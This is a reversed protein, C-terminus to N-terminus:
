DVCGMHSAVATAPVANTPSISKLGRVGHPIRSVRLVKKNKNSLLKKLMYDYTTKIVKNNEIFDDLESLKDTNFFAKLDYTNSLIKDTDVDEIFDFIDQINFASVFSLEPFESFVLPEYLLRGFIIENNSINTLGYISKIKNLGKSYKLFSDKFQHKNICNNEFNIKIIRDFINNINQYIDDIKNRNSIDLKTYDELILNHFLGKTLYLTSLSNYSASIFPREYTGARGKRTLENEFEGYDIFYPIKVINKEESKEFPNKLRESIDIMFDDIKKDYTELLSRPIHQTRSNVYDEILSMYDSLIKIHEDISDLLSIFDFMFEDTVFTGEYMGNVQTFNYLTGKSMNQNFKNVFDDYRGTISTHIEETVPSTLNGKYFNFSNKHREVDKFLENTITKIKEISNNKTLSFNSINTQINSLTGKVDDLKELRSYYSIGSLANISKLIDDGDYINNLSKLRIVCVFKAGSFYIDDWVSKINDYIALIYIGRNHFVNILDNREYDYTVPKIIVTYDTKVDDERKNIADILDNQSEGSVISLFDKASEEIDLNNCIYYSEAYYDSGELIKIIEKRFVGGFELRTTRFHKDNVIQGTQMGGSFLENISLRRRIDVSLSLMLKNCDIFPYKYSVNLSGGVSSEEPTKRRSLEIMETDNCIYTENDFNIYGTADTFFLDFVPYFYPLSPVSYDESNQFIKVFFNAFDIETLCLYLEPRGDNEYWFLDGPEYKRLKDNEDYLFTNKNNFGATSLPNIASSGHDFFYSKSGNSIVHHTKGSIYELVDMTKGFLPSMEVSNEDIKSKPNRKEWPVYDFTKYFLDIGNESNIKEIKFTTGYSGPYAIEGDKAKYKIFETPKELNLDNIQEINNYKLNELILNVINYIVESQLQLDKIDNEMTESDSNSYSIRKIIAEINKIAENLRSDNISLYSLVEVFERIKKMTELSKGIFYRAFTLMTMSQIYNNKLELVDETRKNIDENIKQMKESIEKLTLAISEVNNM